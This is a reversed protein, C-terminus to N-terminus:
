AQCYFATTHIGSFGSANIGVVDISEDRATAPVYDLDCDPDPAELNATPPIVSEQMAKFCVITAIASAAGLAHGVVSKTSSMPIDYAANGLARKMAATEARDNLPTSTGHLNFYSIDAASLRSRELARAIARSQQKGENDLSTMHYANSVSAYGAVIGYVHAGRRAAIEAAELVVLGCGEGLLFGDREADFPRSARAPEDNRTSLCHINDFASIVIPTFPADSAGAIVADALGARILDYGLGIADLGATCGTAPTLAFGEAGIETAVAAAAATAVFKFYDPANILQEDVAPSRPKRNAADFTVARRYTREM